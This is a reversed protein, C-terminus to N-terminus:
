GRKDLKVKLTKVEADRKVVIEVEDGAKKKALVGLMEDYNKVDKGDFKTIVDGAKLGGKDAPSGETVRALKCDKADEDRTVGFYANITVASSAGSGVEDGNALRDWQDIYTNIPVHVNSTITPGIRSHIGIVKGAMDFLPGGSDGGVLSCDTTV